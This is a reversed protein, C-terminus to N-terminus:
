WSKVTRNVIDEAVKAIARQQAMEETELQLVPDNPDGAVRFTGWGELRETEWIKNKDRAKELYAKVYIRVIYEKVNEQQDYTYPQRQYETITGLLVADAKEPSVVKLSNDQIFGDIIGQTLTETIGYQETQNDFLPVAVTKIDGTLSPSFSYHACGSLLIAFILPFLKNSGKL